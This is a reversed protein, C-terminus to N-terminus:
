GSVVLEEANFGMLSDLKKYCGTFDSCQTVKNPVIIVRMGARTGAVLGNYSDEVAVAEEPEVGLSKAAKLYLDPYPKIREVDDATILVDFKDILQLRTLHYEPKPRSSSTALALKLGEGKVAAIFEPVGDRAPLDASQAAHIEQVDKSFKEKDVIIGHRKKLEDFLDNNSSGVCLVFEELSLSYNKNQKFWEVFISYWISETDVILGDFDMIVAKVM